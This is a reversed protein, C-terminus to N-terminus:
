RCNRRRYRDHSCRTYLLTAAGDRKENLTRFWQVPSTDVHVKKTSWEPGASVRRHGNSNKTLRVAGSEEDHGRSGSGGARQKGCTLIAQHEAIAAVVSHEIM